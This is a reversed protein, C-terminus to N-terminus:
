KVKWEDCQKCNKEVFEEYSGAYKPDMRHADVWTAYSWCYGLPHDEFFYRCRKDKNHYIEYSM